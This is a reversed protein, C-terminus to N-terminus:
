SHLKCGRNVRDLFICRGDRVATRRSAGGPFDNDAAPADPRFWVSRAAGVLEELASGEALIRAVNPLDVDAGWSCCCDNCLTCKMCEAFYTATFIQEEVSGLVPAGHRSRYTRSLTRRM